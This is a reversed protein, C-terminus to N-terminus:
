TNAQVTDWDESGYEGILWNLGKHRELVVSNDMNAPAMKGKIRADVCAWDYRFILDAEDLIEDIDRLNVKSMFTEFDKELFVVKAAYDCDCISSPFDLEEVLGLAWLLPWYAEYKWIMNILEESSVDLTLIKKEKDTLEAMVDFRELVEVVFDKIGELDDTGNQVDCALQIVVITAIARKAIDEKTRILCSDKTEICPLGEFYPVNQEKLIAISRQKRKEAEAIDQGGNDKGKKGFAFM